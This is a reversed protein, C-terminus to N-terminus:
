TARVVCGDNAVFSSVKSLLSIIFQRESHRVISMGGLALHVSGEVNHAPCESVQRGNSKLM